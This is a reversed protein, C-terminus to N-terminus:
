LIRKPVCLGALFAASTIRFARNCHQGFPDLDSTVTKSFALSLRIFDSSVL